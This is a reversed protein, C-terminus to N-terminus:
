SPHTHITVQGGLILGKSDRNRWVRNVNNGTYLMVERSHLIVACVPHVASTTPHLSHNLTFVVLMAHTTHIQNRQTDQAMVTRSLFWTLVTSTAKTPTWSPHKPKTPRPWLVTGAEVCTHVHRSAYRNLPIHSPTCCYMLYWEQFLSVRLIFM